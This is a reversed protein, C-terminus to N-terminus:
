DWSEYAEGEWLDIFFASTSTHMEAKKTHLILRRFFYNSKCSFDTIIIKTTFAVLISKFVIASLVLGYARVGM